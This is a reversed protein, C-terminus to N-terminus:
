SLPFAEGKKASTLLSADDVAQKLEILLTDKTDADSQLTALSAKQDAVKDELTAVKDELTAVAATSSAVSAKLRTAQHYCLLLTNTHYAGHEIGCEGEIAHGTDLLTLSSAM